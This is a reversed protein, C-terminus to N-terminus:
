SYRYPHSISKGKNEKETLNQTLVLRSTTFTLSLSSDVANILHGERDDTEDDMMIRSNILSNLTSEEVAMRQREEASENMKKPM